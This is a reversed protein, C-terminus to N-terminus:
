RADKLFEVIRGYSNLLNILHPFDEAATAKVIYGAVSLDYAAIKDEERKSTTLMFIVTRRLEDDARLAKVLQIGNMRPM